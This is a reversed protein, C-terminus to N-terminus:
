YIIHVSNAMTRCVSQVFHMAESLPTGNSFLYSYSCSRTCPLQTLDWAHLEWTKDLRSKLFELYEWLDSLDHLSDTDRLSSFAVSV